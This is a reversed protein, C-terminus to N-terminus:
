HSALSEAEAEVQGAEAEAEAETGASSGTDSANAEEADAAEAELERATAIFSTVEVVPQDREDLDVPVAEARLSIDKSSLEFVLNVAEDKHKSRFLLKPDRGDVWERHKNIFHGHQNTVIFVKSMTTKITDSPNISPM